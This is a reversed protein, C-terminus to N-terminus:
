LPYIPRAPRRSFSGLPIDVDKKKNKVPTKKVGKKGRSTKPSPGKATTKKGPNSGKEMMIIIAM